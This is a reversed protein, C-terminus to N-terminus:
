WSLVGRIWTHVVARPIFDGASTSVAIALLTVLLAVGVVLLGRPETYRGRLQRVLVVTALLGLAAICLFAAVFSGPM